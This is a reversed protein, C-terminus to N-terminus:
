ITALDRPYKVGYTHVLNYVLINNFNWFKNTDIAKYATHWCATASNHKPLGSERVQGLGTGREREGVESGTLM